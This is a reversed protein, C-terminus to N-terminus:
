LLLRTKSIPEEYSDEDPVFVSGPKTTITARWVTFVTGVGATNVQCCDVEELVYWHTEQAESNGQYQEPICLRTHIHSHAHTYQIHPSRSGWIYALFPLVPSWLLSDGYGVVRSTKHCIHASYYCYCIVEWKVSDNWTIQKLVTMKILPIKNKLFMVPLGAHTRQQEKGGSRIFCAGGTWAFQILTISKTVSFFLTHSFLFTLRSKSQSIADITVFSRHFHASSIFVVIHLMAYSHKM